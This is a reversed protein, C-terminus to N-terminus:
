LGKQIKEIVAKPVAIPQENNAELIELLKLLKVPNGNVLAAANDRSLVITDKRPQTVETSGEGQPASRQVSAKGAARSGSPIGTPSFAAANLKEPTDTSLERNKVGFNDVDAASTNGKIGNGKIIINNEYPTFESHSNQKVGTDTKGTNEVTEPMDLSHLKAIYSKQADTGTKLQQKKQGKSSHLKEKKATSNKRPNVAYEPVELRHLKEAFVTIISPKHDRREVGIYNHLELFRLSARVQNLNKDIPRGDKGEYKMGLDEVMQRLSRIVQGKQLTVDRLVEEKHVTNFRLYLYLRLHNVYKPEKFLPDYQFERNVEIYPNPNYEM